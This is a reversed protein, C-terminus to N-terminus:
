STRTGVINMKDWILYGSSETLLQRRFQLLASLPRGATVSSLEIYGSIKEASKNSQVSNASYNQVM